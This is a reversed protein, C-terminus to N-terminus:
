QFKRGVFLFFLIFLGITFPLAGILSLSLGNYGGVIENGILFIIIGVSCSLFGWWYPKRKWISYIGGIIFLCLFIWPLVVYLLFSMTNMRKHRNERSKM